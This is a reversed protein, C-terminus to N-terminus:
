SRRVTSLESPYICNNASRGKRLGAPAPLTCGRVAPRRQSVPSRTSLSYPDSSSGRAVPGAGASGSRKSAKRRTRSANRNGSVPSRVSGPVPDFFTRCLRQCTRPPQTIYRRAALALEAARLPCFRLIHLSDAAAQVKFVPYQSLGTFTRLAFWVLGTKGLPDMLLGFRCVSYPDM